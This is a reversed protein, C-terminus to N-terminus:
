PPTPPTRPVNVDPNPTGKGTMLLRQHSSQVTDGGEGVGSGLHSPEM